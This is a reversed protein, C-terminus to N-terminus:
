NNESLMAAQVASGYAVAEDPYIGKWLKKGELLTLTLRLCIDFGGRQRGM